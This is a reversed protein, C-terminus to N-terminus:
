HRATAATAGAKQAQEKEKLKRAKNLHKHWAVKKAKNMKKLRASVGAYVCSFFAREKRKGKYLGFKGQPCSHM